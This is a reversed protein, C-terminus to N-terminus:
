ILDRRLREWCRGEPDFDLTQRENTTVFDLQKYLLQAPDNSDDLTWLIVTRVGSEKLEGIIDTLMDFAIGRNRFGKAVWVYELYRENAPAGSERTVGTLFVHRDDLESVFWEGRDFEAQWREQDYRKEEDCKALFSRPSEDLAILRADRLVKWENRVLRRFELDPPM